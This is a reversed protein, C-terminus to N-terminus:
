VEPEAVDGDAPVLYLHCLRPYRRKLEEEAEFDFDEAAVPAALDAQPASDERSLDTPETQTMLDWGVGPPELVAVGM